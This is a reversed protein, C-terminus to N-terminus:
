GGAKVQCDYASDPLSVADRQQGTSRAGDNDFAGPFTGDYLGARRGPSRTRTGTTSISRRSSSTRRRTPSTRATSRRRAHRLPQRVLREVGYRCGGGITSRRSTDAATGISASDKIEVKGRVSSSSPCSRASNEMCLDGRVYVPADISISNKLLTCLSTTDAFLYGWAAEFTAVDHCQVQSSATRSVPTTGGTPNTYTGPRDADLDEDRLRLHRSYTVTGGELTLTGRGVVATAM